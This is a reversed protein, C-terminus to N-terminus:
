AIKPRGNGNPEAHIARELAQGVQGISYGFRHRYSQEELVSRIIREIDQPSIEVGKSKVADIWSGITYAQVKALAMGRLEIENAEFQARLENDRTERAVDENHLEITRLEFAKLKLGWTKIVDRLSQQVAHEIDHRNKSVDNRTEVRKYIEARVLDDVAESILHRFLAEWFIPNQRAASPSLNVQTAIDRFLSDRNPVQQAKSAEAEMLVYTVDVVIRKINRMERTNIEDLTIESRLDYLPMKASIAEFNPLLPRLRASGPIKRMGLPSRIMLLTNAAVYIMSNWLWALFLYTVVAGIAAGLLAGPISWVAAGALAGAVTILVLTFGGLVTLGLTGGRFALIGSILLIVGGLVLMLPSPMLMNTQAVSIGLLSVFVLFVLIASMIRM